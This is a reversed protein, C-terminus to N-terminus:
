NLPKSDKRIRYSSLRTRLSDPAQLEALYSELDRGTSDRCAADAGFQLLLEVMHWDKMKAAQHLPYTRRLGLATRKPANLCETELRSRFGHKKLFNMVESKQAALQSRELHRLRVERLRKLAELADSVAAIVYCSKIDEEADLKFHGGIKQFVFTSTLAM